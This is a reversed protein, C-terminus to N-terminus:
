RDVSLDIGDTAVVTVRGTADGSGCAGGTDFELTSTAQNSGTVTGTRNGLPHTDAGCDYFYLFRLNEPITDNAIATIERRQTMLFLEWQGGEIAGVFRQFAM